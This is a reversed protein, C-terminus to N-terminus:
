HGNIEWTAFANKDRLLGSASSSRGPFLTYGFRRMRKDIYDLQYQQEQSAHRYASSFDHLRSTSVYRLQKADVSAVKIGVGMGKGKDKKNYKSKDNEHLRLMRGEREGKGRPRMLGGDRSAIESHYDLPHVFRSSTDLSSCVDGARTVWSSSGGGREGAVVALPPPSLFHALALCLQQPRYMLSETRLIGVELGGRVRPVTQGQEQRQVQRHDHGRQLVLLLEEMADLWGLEGESCNSSGSSSSSQIHSPLMLSHINNYNRGLMLRLFVEINQSIHSRMEKDSLPSKYGDASVKFSWHTSMASNLTIPNKLIVVHRVTSGRWIGNIFPIKVMDQPSKQVFIEDPNAPGYLNPWFDGMKKQISLRLSNTPPTNIPCMKGPYYNSWVDKMENGKLVWQGEYNFRECVKAGLSIDCQRHVTSTNPFVSIMEHILSTGSQPWGSVMIFYKNNLSLSEGGALLCFIYFAFSSFEFLVM